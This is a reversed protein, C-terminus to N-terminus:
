HLGAPAGVLRAREARHGRGRQAPEGGLALEAAAVHRRLHLGGAPEDLRAPLARDDRREVPDGVGDGAPGTGNDRFSTLMGSGMSTRFIGSFCTLSALPRASSISLPITSASRTTATM